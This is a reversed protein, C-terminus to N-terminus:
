VNYFSGKPFDSYISSFVEESIFDQLFNRDPQGVRIRPGIVNNQSRKEKEAELFSLANKERLAKDEQEMEDMEDEMKKEFETSEESPKSSGEMADRHAIYEVRVLPAKKDYIIRGVDKSHNALLQSNTKMDERQQIYMENAQRLMTPNLDPM